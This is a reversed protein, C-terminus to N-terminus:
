PTAAMWWAQVSAGGTNEFYRVDITHYGATLYRTGVVPRPGHVSWDNVVLVGDVYIRVGDDAKAYFTYTGATFYPRGVWRVSFYDNSIVGARPSGTGWNYNIPWNEVRSYKFTNFSTGNYYYAIPQPVDKTVVVDDVFPGKFTISADSTFALAIWVSGNDLMSGCGPVAALNLHVYRWGGSNGSTRQGCFRAGDTSAYWGFWDYSTESNNWYWFSLSASTASDLSMPGYIMYSRMNNAYNQTAPNRANAGGRAAWASWNGNKRTYSTDDWYLEGGSTGNADFVRWGSSPWVGEFTERLLTYSADTEAPALEQADAIKETSEGDSPPLVDDQMSASKPTENDSPEEGLVFLHNELVESVNAQWVSVSPIYIRNQGDEAPVDQANVSLRVPAIAVILVMAFVALRYM